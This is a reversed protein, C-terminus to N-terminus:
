QCGLELLQALKHARILRRAGIKVSALAGSNLLEYLKSRSIGSVFAADAIGYALRELRVPSQATNSAAAQASSDGQNSPSVQGAQHVRM